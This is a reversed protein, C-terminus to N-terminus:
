AIDKKQADAMINPLKWDSFVTKYTQYFSRLLTKQYVGFSPYATDIAEVMSRLTNEQTASLIVDGTKTKLFTRAYIVTGARAALDEASLSPVLINQLLLSKSVARCEEPFASAAFGRSVGDELSEPASAVSLILGFGDDPDLFNRVAEDGAFV